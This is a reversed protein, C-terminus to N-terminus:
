GSKWNFNTFNWVFYKLQKTFLHSNLNFEYKM